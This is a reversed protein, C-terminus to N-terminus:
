SLLPAVFAFFAGVLFISVSVVYTWTSWKRARACARALQPDIPCPANRARWQLGGAALLMLGAIGFVLAKHASLWVIQPVASVLGSLAAGAGIAVFLAPLACCILTGSSTFLSLASAARSARLSPELAGPGTTM